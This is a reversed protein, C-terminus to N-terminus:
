RIVTKIRSNENESRFSSRNETILTLNQLTFIPKLTTNQAKSKTFTGRHFACNPCKKERYLRKRVPFQMKRMALASCGVIFDSLFFLM